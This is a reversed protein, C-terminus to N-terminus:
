CGFKQKADFCSEEDPFDFSIIHTHTHTHTTVCRVSSLVSIKDRSLADLIVSIKDRSLADLIIPIKDRCLADLNDFKTGLCLM